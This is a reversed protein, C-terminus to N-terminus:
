ELPELYYKEEEELDSMASNSTSKEELVDFRPAMKTEVERWASIEQNMKSFLEEETLRAPASTLPTSSSPTSGNSPKRSSFIKEYDALGMVVYPEGDDPNIWIVKDGTKKVIKLIREFFNQSSM